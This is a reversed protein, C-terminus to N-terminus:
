DSKCDKEATDEKTNHLRIMRWWDNLYFLSVFRFLSMCAVQTVADGLTSVPSMGATLAALMWGEFSFYVLFPPNPKVAEKVMKQAVDKPSALGGQESILKTVKPKLKNEEEFGPTDTDPPFAVQVNVSPQDALEAHLAEAFGRLAFKTPAYSTYGFFGVQGVISSTFVITGNAMLPLFAQVTYIAGLQNTQVCKAFTDSSVNELKSPHAVGACCFLHVTQNPNKEKGLLDKAAEKLSSADSVDVARYSIVTKLNTKSKELQKQAEELKSKNRALITVKSFGREVCEQAISLGIGSSGGSIIAHTNVQAVIPTDSTKGELTSYCLLFLSPIALLAVLPATIVLILLAPLALIGAVVIKIMGMTTTLYATSLHLFHLTAAEFYM